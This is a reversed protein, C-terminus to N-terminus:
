VAEATATKACPPRCGTRSVLTRRTTARATCPAASAPGGDVRRSRAATSASSGSSAARDTRQFAATMSSPAVTHVARAGPHPVQGTRSRHTQAAKWPCRAQLVRGVDAFEGVPDPVPDPVTVVRPGAGIASYQVARM